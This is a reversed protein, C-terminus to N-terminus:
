YGRDAGQRLARTVYRVTVPQILQDELTVVLVRSREEQGHVESCLFILVALTVTLRRAKEISQLM